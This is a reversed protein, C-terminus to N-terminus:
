SLWHVDLLLEHLIVFVAVLFAIILAPKGGSVRYQAKIGQQYRGRWAMLAPLLLLLFVCLIGAFSLAVIFIAPFFLGILLPPIFTAAFILPKQMGKKQLKFGDALFDSLSLSVGLFSTAVCVTTFLRAFVDVSSSNSFEIISETLASTTHGARLVSLMGGHGRLPIEALVVAVWCLYIILPVFSGCLIALRLQRVDSNFYARLSPIVSAFGFSVVVVTSVSVLYTTHLQQLRHMHVHSSILTILILLATLKVAMLGRNVYDICQIGHYVILGFIGLFLFAYVWRPFHVWTPGLLYHFIDAGGSIYAALLGYLFLLYTVWTIVQGGTGLTSKAMSIINSNPPLWLNVELILLAGFSMVMWAIVFLLGAGLFGSQATAVPLALMGGGISTGMVLLVGGLLRVNM